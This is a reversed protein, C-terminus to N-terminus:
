FRGERSGASTSQSPHVGQLFELLERQLDYELVRQSAARKRLAVENAQRCEDLKVRRRTERRFCRDALSNADLAEFYHTANLWDGHARLTPTSNSDRLLNRGIFPYPAPDIGLLALVTVPLDVLGADRDIRGRPADEGPIWLILPVKDEFIWNLRGGETFDFHDELRRERHIGADHDGYVVLVTQDLLGREELGSVLEEFAADFYHMAELYNGLSSGDSVEEPLEALSRPFGEYPHHLSLTILLAFFPQPLDELRNLMQMLFDRDNLGWGIEPGEDFDPEFLRHEFGYASFTVYRNWFPSRFAVASLTEYGHSELISPLGVFANGGYAFAAATGSAPLLSAMAMLEADSTRGLGSQDTTQAFVLASEARRNLNPTIEAEEFITGVAYSQMSEVQIFIVNKGRAIGAGPADLSRDERTEVFWERTEELVDEPVTRSLFVRRLLRRAEVLHFGPIGYQRVLNTNQYIQTEFKTPPEALLQRYRVLGPITLGVLVVIAAIGETSFIRSRGYQPRRAVLITLLLAPVLDIFLLADVSRTLAWVSDLLAPANGAAKLTAVTAVDGFFRTYIIDGWIWTSALLGVAFSIWARVLRPVLLLLVLVVATLSLDWWPIRPDFSGGVREYLFSPKVLLLTGCWLVDGLGAVRAVISPSESRRTTWLVLAGALAVLLPAYHVFSPM